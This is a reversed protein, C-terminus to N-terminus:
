EGDEIGWDGIGLRRAVWVVMGLLLPVVFAVLLLGSVIQATKDYILFRREGAESREVIAVPRLHVFGHGQAALQDTGVLARRRVYTTMRVVPVVERGGVGMGEGEVVESIAKRGM